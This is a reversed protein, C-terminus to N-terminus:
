PNEDRLGAAGKWRRDGLITVEPKITPSVPWAVAEVGGKAELIKTM